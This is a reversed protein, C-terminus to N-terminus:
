GEGVEWLEVKMVELREMKRDNKRYSIKMLFVYLYNKGFNFVRRLLFM